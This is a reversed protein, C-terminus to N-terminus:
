WQLCLFFDEAKPTWEQERNRPIRAWINTHSITSSLQSVMKVSFYGLWFVWSGDTRVKVLAQSLTTWSRSSPKPKGFSLVVSTSAALLFKLDFQERPVCSRCVQNTQVSLLELSLTVPRRAPLFIVVTASGQPKYTILVAISNRTHPSRLSNTKRTLRIAYIRLTYVKQLYSASVYTAKQSFQIGM